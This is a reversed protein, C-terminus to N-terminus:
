RVHFWYAARFGLFSPRVDNIGMPALGMRYQLGIELQNRKKMQRSIGLTANATGAYFESSSFTTGSNVNIVGLPDGADFAQEYEIQEKTFLMATYGVSGTLYTRNSIPHRYKLNVPFELIESDYEVATLEGLTPDYGPKEVESLENADEIENNLKNYVVGAEISLSPSVIMDAMVGYYAQPTGSGLDFFPKNVGFVPSIRLGVGKMYHKELEKKTQLDMQYEPDGEAPSEETVIFGLNGGDYPYSNLFNPRMPYSSPVNGASVLYVENEQFRIYGKRDLETLLEDSLDDKYRLFLTEGKGSPREQIETVLQDLRSRLLELEYQLELSSSEVVITDVQTIGQQDMLKEQLAMMQDNSDQLDVLQDNLQSYKRNELGNYMGWNFILIIIVAAATLLEAKFQSYWPVPASETMKYHLDALGAPDFAPDPYQELKGKIIDDFRSDDM